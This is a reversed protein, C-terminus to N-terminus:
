RPEDVLCPATAVCVPRSDRARVHEDAACRPAKHVDVIVGDRDGPCTPTQRVSVRPIATPPGCGPGTLGVAEDGVELQAEFRFDDDLWLREPEAPAVAVREIALLEFGSGRDFWRDVESVEGTFCAEQCGDTGPECRTVADAAAAAYEALADARAVRLHVVDGITLTPADAWPCRGALGTAVEAHVVLAGGLRPFILDARVLLEYEDWSQEALWPGADLCGGDGCLRARAEDETAPPAAAGDGRLAQWAQRWGDYSVGAGPARAVRAACVAAAVPAETPPPASAARACGLTLSLMVGARHM